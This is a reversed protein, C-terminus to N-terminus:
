GLGPGILVTINDAGHESRCEGYLLGFYGPDNLGHTYQRPGCTRISFILVRCGGIFPKMALDGSQFRSSRPIERLARSRDPSRKTPYHVRQMHCQLVSCVPALRTTSSQIGQCSACFISWFRTEYEEPKNYLIWPLHLYALHAQNSLRMNEPKNVVSVLRHTFHHATLM